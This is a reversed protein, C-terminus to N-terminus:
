DIEEPNDLGGPIHYPDNTLPDIPEPDVELDLRISPSQVPITNFVGRSVEFWICVKYTGSGKDTQLEYPQSTSVIEGM